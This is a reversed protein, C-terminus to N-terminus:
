REAQEAFWKEVKAKMEVIESPADDVLVRGKGEVYRLYPAYKKQMNQIENPIILRM